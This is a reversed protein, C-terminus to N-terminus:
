SFCRQFYRPTESPIRGHLRLQFEVHYCEVSHECLGSTPICDFCSSSSFLVFNLLFCWFWSSFGRRGISDRQHWRNAIKIHHWTFLLFIQLAWRLKWLASLSPQIQLYPAIFSLQHMWKWLTEYSTVVLQTAQFLLFCGRMTRHGSTQFRLTPLATSGRSDRPSIGKKGREAEPPQWGGQSQMVGTEAETQGHSERSSDRMLVCKPVVQTIWSSM